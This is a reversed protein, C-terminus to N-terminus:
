QRSIAAAPEPTPGAIAQQTEADFLHLVAGDLRLPVVQGVNPLATPDVRVTFSQGGVDAFIYAVDGMPEVVDVKAAVVGAEPPKVGDAGGAPLVQIASPRVGAIVARDAYRGAADASTCPLPVRFTGMDFALTGGHPTLRGTMFNMSPTGIFGAVFVNAPHAYVEQPTGVQQIVGDKLVVIRDGMTMAEVQDHTVYIFTTQLRQHLKSIEARMQVRLIADLNSLPEDMLFVDPERVIARGLAVRQRQGGSLERPRRQLLHGIGLLAAAEHVRREIEQRSVKRLKLGFAMNDYVNMHPYLAYDQFVMAINRAKPPVRNMLREGIYIEGETIDELGAISYLMTSKGCGSPGLLIIFEGDRIELNARNVATVKGFRKTLNKLTVSAM